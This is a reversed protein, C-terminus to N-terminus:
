WRPMLYRKPLDSPWRRVKTNVVGEGGGSVEIREVVNNLWLFSPVTQRPEEM